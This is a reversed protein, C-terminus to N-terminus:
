AFLRTLIEERTLGAHDAVDRVIANLTRVKIPNHASITIHHEGNMQTTLRIHCGTQHSM